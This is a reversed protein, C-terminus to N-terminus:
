MLGVYASGLKSDTLVTEPRGRAVLRGQRMFCAVDAVERVATLDHEIIVVTRGERALTRLLQLIAARPKPSIGATPEDLLLISSRNALLRAFALLKQQGYSLERALRHYTADPLGVRELNARAEADIDARSLLTARPHLLASAPGEGPQGPIAVRVNDLATMSGFVRVDQFLRGIGYRAIRWTPIGDIRRDGLTISGQDPRLTGTMLHFLTTKGAGNPGVLATVEGRDFHVSVDAVAHVGGFRKTIEHCKLNAASSEATM